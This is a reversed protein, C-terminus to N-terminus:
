WATEEACPSSAPLVTPIQLVTSFIHNPSLVSVFAATVFSFCFNFLLFLSFLTFFCLFLLFSELGKVESHPFILFTTPHCSLLM